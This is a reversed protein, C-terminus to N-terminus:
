KEVEARRIRRLATTRCQKRAMQSSVQRNAESQTLSEVETRLPPSHRRLPPSGRLEAAAGECSWCSRVGIWSLLGWLRPRPRVPRPPLKRNGLQIVVLQVLKEFFDRDM